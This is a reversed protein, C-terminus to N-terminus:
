NGWFELEAINGYGEASSIYRVYRYSGSINQTTLNGEVPTTGV